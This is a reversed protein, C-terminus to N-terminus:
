RQIVAVKHGTEIGVVEPNEAGLPMGSSGDGVATPDAGWTVFCDTDTFLRVRRMTANNGQSLAASQVSGAGVAVAMEQIPPNLLTQTADAFVSIFLTAM